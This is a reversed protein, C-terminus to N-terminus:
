KIVGKRYSCIYVMDKFDIHIAKPQTPYQYEKEM